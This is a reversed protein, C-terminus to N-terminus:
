IFCSFMGPTTSLKFIIVLILDRLIASNANALALSSPLFFIVATWLALIMYSECLYFAM